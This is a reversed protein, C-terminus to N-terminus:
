LKKFTKEGSILDRLVEKLKSTKIRKQEKTDRFSITVDNNKMSTEDITICFPTGIEDNRAYRRGISGSQDYVTDGSNEDRPFYLVYYAPLNNRSAIKKRISTKQLATNHQSPVNITQDITTKAPVVLPYSVDKEIALITAEESGYNLILVKVLLFIIVIKWIIGNNM